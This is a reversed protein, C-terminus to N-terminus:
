AGKTVKWICITLSQFLPTIFTTLTASEPALEIKWFGSNADLKSFVKARDLQTLIQEVSLFCIDKEM